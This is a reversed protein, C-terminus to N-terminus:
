QLVPELEAWIAAPDHKMSSSLACLTLTNETTYLVANHLTTQRHSAGFHVQQVEKSYKCQLNEAYDIHLIAGDEKLSRHLSQLQTYQHQINFLHKCVKEKMEKEFDDLPHEASDECRQKIPKSVTITETKGDKEKEYNEKKHAVPVVM